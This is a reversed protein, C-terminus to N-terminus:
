RTSTLPTLSEKARALSLISGLELAGSYYGSAGRYIVVSRLSPGGGASPCPQYLLSAFDVRQESGLARAGHPNDGKDLFLFDDPLDQLVQLGPLIRFQPRRRGNRLIYTVGIEM